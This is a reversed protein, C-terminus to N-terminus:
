EDVQLATCDLLPIWGIQKTLELEGMTEAVYTEFGTYDSEDKFDLHNLFYLYSWPNHVGDTHTKFTDFTDIERRELSCMLCRENEDDILANEEDRTVAYADVIQAGIIGSFIFAYLSVWLVGFMQQFQQKWEQDFKKPIINNMEKLEGRTGSLLGRYFYEYLTATPQGSAFDESPGFMMFDMGIMMILTLCMVIFTSLLGLGGKRMALSVASTIPLRYIEILQVFHVMPYWLGLVSLAIGSITYYTRGMAGFAFIAALLLSDKPIVPPDKLPEKWKPLEEKVDEEETFDEEEEGGGDDNQEEWLDTVVQVMSDAFFNWAFGAMSVLQVICLVWVVDKAWLSDGWPNADLGYFCLCFVVIVGSIWIHAEDLTSRASYLFPVLTGSQFIESAKTELALRKLQNLMEKAKDDPVDRPVEDRMLSNARAQYQTDGRLAICRDPIPFLVTYIVGERRVELTCTADVLERSLQDLCVCRKKGINWKNLEDCEMSHLGDFMSLWLLSMGFEPWNLDTLFLYMLMEYAAYAIEELKEVTEDRWEEDYEEYEKVHLLLGFKVLPPARSEYRGIEHIEDEAMIDTIEDVLVTTDVQLTVRRPIEDTANGELVATVVQLFVAKLDCKLHLLCYESGREEDSLIPHMQTCGEELDSWSESQLDIRLLKTCKILCTILDTSSLIMQNSVCPGQMAETFFNALMAMLSIIRWEDTEIAVELCEAITEFLSVGEKIMNIAAPNGGQSNVFEQMEQNHGECFLQLTRWTALALEIANDFERDVDSNNAKAMRRLADIKNSRATGGERTTANSKLAEEADTEQLVDVWKLAFTAVDTCADRCAQFFDECLHSDQLQDLYEQQVTPNGDQLMAISLHMASLRIEQDLDSANVLSAEAFGLGCYKDQVWAVVDGCPESKELAFGMQVCRQWREKKADDPVVNDPDSFGQYQEQLELSNNPDDLNIMARCLGLLNGKFAVDLEKATAKGLVSAVTFVVQLPSVHAHNKEQHAYQSVAHARAIRWM